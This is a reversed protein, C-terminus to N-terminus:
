KKESAEKKTDPSVKKPEPAEKKSEPTVKKPETAEKTPDPAKKTDPEKKLAPGEKKGELIAKATQGFLIESLEITEASGVKQFIIAAMFDGQMAALEGQTINMGLHATAMDKGTYKYPGGSAASVFELLSKEFAAVGKEDLKYKGNRTFNVKPNKISASVFDHILAKVGKEGGLREWLPKKPPELAEGAQRQVADIAVRLVAAAEPAALKDAAALRTQILNVLQPRHDLLPVMTVLTAQYIRFCGEHNGSNFIKTGYSAANYATNAAWKDIEVRSIPPDDAGNTTSAVAMMASALALVRVWM